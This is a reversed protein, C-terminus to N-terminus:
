KYTGFARAGRQVYIAVGSVEPQQQQFTMHMQVEMCIFGVRIVNHEITCPALPPTHIRTVVAGKKIVVHKVIGEDDSPGHFGGFGGGKKVLDGAHLMATITWSSQNWAILRDRESCVYVPRDNIKRTTQKYM